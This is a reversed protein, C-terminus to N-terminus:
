KDAEPGSTPTKIPRTEIVVGEDVKGNGNSRAKRSGGFSRFLVYVGIVIMAVPILSIALNFLPALLLGAGITTMIGAPILAWWHERNKLFVYFFPAAIAFMVYPAVLQDVFEALVIIGAIAYMVYAPIMAWWHERNNLYVALFTTGIGVMIFTPLLFGLNIDFVQNVLFFGGLVILLGGWVWSRSGVGSKGNM